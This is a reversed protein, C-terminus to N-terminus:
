FFSRLVSPPRKSFVRMRTADLSRSINRHSTPVPKDSEGQPRESSPRLKGRGICERGRSGIPRDFVAGLCVKQRQKGQSDHGERTLDNEQMNELGTVFLQNRLAGIGADTEAYHGNDGPAARANSGFHFQVANQSGVIGPVHIDCYPPKSGELQFTKLTDDGSLEIGSSLHNEVGVIGPHLMFGLVRQDLQVVPHLVRGTIAFLDNRRIRFITM